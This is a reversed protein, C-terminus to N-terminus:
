GLRLNVNRGAMRVFNPYTAEAIQRGDMMLTLHLDGGAAGGSSMRSLPIVAEPGAEGILAFTPRRVIGGAAFHAGPPASSPAGGGGGGGGVAAQAANALARAADTVAGIQSRIGDAFRSGLRQGATFLPVQYKALLALVKAQIKAWEEPHKALEKQLTLLQGALGERQKAAIADQTRQEAAALQTLAQEKEATVADNLAKQNAVATDLAQQAAAIAAPDGGAQATALNATAQDIASQAAAMAPGAAADIAAIVQQQARASVANLAAETRAGSIQSVATAMAGGIADGLTKAIGAAAAAGGGGIAAMATALSDISQKVQDALQMKDLLKLAPPKWAAMKADFASLAGQALTSFASNFSAQADVVAQRAAVIAQALATKIQQVIGPSGALIGRAVALAHEMGITQGAARVAALVDGALMRAKVANMAKGAADTAAPLGALIGAAIGQMIPKGVQEAMVKSPSGIGLIGKAHGLISGVAGTVASIAGGIASEIGSIIGHIIERGIAIAAGYASKAVGSIVAWLRDLGGKVVSVLSALGSLIGRVIGTGIARAAAVARSVSGTIAGVVANFATRALGALRSWIGSLLSLIGNWASAALTSILRWAISFATTLINLFFRAQNLLQAVAGSFINQLGAWLQSWDGTLLGHLVQFLGHIVQFANRITALLFSFHAQLIGMITNGWQAWLSTIGDLASHVAPEITDLAQVYARAAEAMIFGSTGASFGLGELAAQFKDTATPAAAIKDMFNAVGNAAAGLVPLLHSGLQEELNQLGAHFKAIGGAASESFAQAQGRIKDTLMQYGIAGKEQTDLVRAHALMERGAVTTLDVKARKLADVHDTVTPVIIGYEKLTRANGAQVRILNTTADGLSINKARALDQATGLERTSGAVGKGAQILKQFSERVDANTFGLQRSSAELRLIAPSTATMQIGQNKLAVTLKDNAEQAAIAAEVSKKGVVVAIGAVAATGILAAKGVAAFAHGVRSGFTQTDAAATGLARSYSRTDGIIEVRLAQAM